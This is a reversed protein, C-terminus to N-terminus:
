FREYSSMAIATQLQSHGTSTSRHDSRASDHVATASPIARRNGTGSQAHRNRRHDARGRGSGWSWSFLHHFFKENTTRQLSELRRTGGEDREGDRGVALETEGRWLITLVAGGNEQDLRESRRIGTRPGRLGRQRSGAGVCVAPHHIEQGTQLEPWSSRLQLTRAQSLRRGEPLVGMTKARFAGFYRIVEPGSSRPPNERRRRADDRRRFGHRPSTAFARPNSHPRSRPMIRNISIRHQFNFDEDTIPTSVLHRAKRSSDQGRNAAISRVVPNTKLLSRRIWTLRSRRGRDFSTAGSKSHRKLRMKCNWAESQFARGTQGRGREAKKM